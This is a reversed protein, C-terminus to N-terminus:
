TLDICVLRWKQEQKARRMLEKLPDPEMKAQLFAHARLFRVTKVCACLSDYSTCEIASEFCLVSIACM